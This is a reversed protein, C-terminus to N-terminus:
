RIVTIVVSPVKDEAVAELAIVALHRTAGASTGEAADRQLARYNCHSPVPDTTWHCSVRVVCQYGTRNRCSGKAWWHGTTSHV